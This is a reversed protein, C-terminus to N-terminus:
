LDFRLEKRYSYWEDKDIGQELVLCIRAWCPGFLPCEGYTQLEKAKKYLPAFSSANVPTLIALQFLQPSLSTLKRLKFQLYIFWRWPHSRPSCHWWSCSRIRGSCHPCSFRRALCYTVDSCLVFFVQLTRVKTYSFYM